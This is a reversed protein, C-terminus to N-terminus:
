LKQHSPGKFYQVSGEQFARLWRKLPTGDALCCGLSNGSASVVFILPLKGRWVESSAMKVHCGLESSACLWPLLLEQAWIRSTKNTLQRAATLSIILLDVSHYSLVPFVTAGASFLVSLYTFLYCQQVQTATSFAQWAAKEWKMSLMNVSMLVCVGQIQAYAFM